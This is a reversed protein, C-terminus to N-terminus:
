NMGSLTMPHTADGMFHMEIAPSRAWRLFEMINEGVMNNLEEQSELSGASGRSKQSAMSKSTQEGELSVYVYVHVFVFAYVYICVYSVKEHTPTHLIRGRTGFLTYM